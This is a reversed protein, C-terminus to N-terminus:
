RPDIGELALRLLREGDDPSRESALAAAGVLTLLDAITVDARVAGADIARELLPRGAEILTHHCDACTPHGSDGSVHLVAAALGRVDTLYNRVAHLWSILTEAPAPDEPDLAAQAGLARVTDAFVADILEWRTPFHRHLTASGVGARRAIEELSGDAGDRLFVDAAAAILRQRSRQADARIPRAGTHEPM